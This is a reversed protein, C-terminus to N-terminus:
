TISPMGMRLMLYLKIIKITIIEVRYLGNTWNIYLNIFIKKLNNMQETNRIGTTDEAEIILFISMEPFSLIELPVMRLLM